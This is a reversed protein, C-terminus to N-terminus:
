PRGESGAALLSVGLPDQWRALREPSPDTGARPVWLVAQPGRPIIRVVPARVPLTREVAVDGLLIPRKANGVREAYGRAGERLHASAARYITTLEADVPGRGHTTLHRQLREVLVKLNAQDDNDVLAPLADRAVVLMARQWGLSLDRRRTRTLREGEASAIFSSSSRPSPSPSPSSSSSSSSSSSPNKKALSNQLPDNPDDEEQGALLAFTRAFQKGDGARAAAVSARALHHLRRGPDPDNEALWLFAGLGSAHVGAATATQAFREVRGLRESPAGLSELVEMTEPVLSAAILLRVALDDIAALAPDGDVTARRLSGLAARAEALAEARRGAKAHADVQRWALYRGLLDGGHPPPGIARAAEDARGAARLQESLRFILGRRLAAPWEFPLAAELRAVAEQRRHPQNADRSSSSQEDSRMAPPESGTRPNRPQNAEGAVAAADAAVARVLAVAAPDVGTAAVARADSPLGDLSELAAAPHDGDLALVAEELLLAPLAPHTEPLSDTLEAILRWRPDQPRPRPPAEGAPAVVVMVASAAKGLDSASAPAPAANPPACYDTVARGLPAEDDWREAEVPWVLTDRPPAAIEVRRGAVKREGQEDLEAMATVRLREIQVLRRLQDWAGMAGRSAGPPRAVPECRLLALLESWFDLAPDGQGRARDAIALLAEHAEPLRRSWVATAARALAADRAAPTWAAAVPTAPPRPAACAALVFAALVDAALAVGLAGRAGRRM